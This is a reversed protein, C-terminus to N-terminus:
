ENYNGYIACSYRIIPTYLFLPWKGSAVDCMRVILIYTLLYCIKAATHITHKFASNKYARIYYIIVM